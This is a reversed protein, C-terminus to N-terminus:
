ARPLGLAASPDLLCLRAHVEATPFPLAAAGKEAHAARLYLAAARAALPPDWAALDRALAERHLEGAVSLAIAALRADLALTALELRAEFRARGTTALDVARQATGLADPTKGARLLEDAERRAIQSADEDTPRASAASPARDLGELWARTDPSAFPTGDALEVDLLGPLRAVLARVAHLHVDRADRALGGHRTLAEHLAHHADLWFRHKELARLAVDVIRAADREARSRELEARLATAPAPLGTRRDRTTPPVQVVPLYLGALFLRLAEPDHARTARLPASAALLASGVQALFHPLRATEAPASPLAPLPVSTAGAPPAATAGLAAAETPAPIVNPPAAIPPPAVSAPTGPTLTAAAGAGRAAGTASAPTSSPATALPAEPPLSLALREIADALRQTSPADDGLRLSAAARLQAVGARLRAVHARDREAPRAQQAISEAREVFWALANGRARPRVPHLTEYRSLLESLLTVGLALGEIGRRSALAGALYSASALDKSTGLVAIAEREVVDWRCAGSAPSELRAIEERLAQYAALPRPDPGCVPEGPSPRTWAEIEPSPADTVRAANLRADTM